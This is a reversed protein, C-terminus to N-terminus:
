CWSDTYQDTLRNQACYYYELDWVDESHKAPNHWRNCEVDEDYYTQCPTRHWNGNTDEYYRGIPYDGTGADLAHSLEHLVNYMDHYHANSGENQVSYNSSMYPGGVLTCNGPTPDSHSLGTFTAGGFDDMVLINSDDHYHCHNYLWEDWDTSNADSYLNWPDSMTPSQGKHLIVDNSVGADNLALEIQDRILELVTKWDSHYAQYTSEAWIGIAVTM